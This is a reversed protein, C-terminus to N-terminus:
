LSRVLKNASKGSVFWVDRWNSPIWIEKLFTQLWDKNLPLAKGVCIWIIALFFHLQPHGKNVLGRSETLFRLSFMNFSHKWTCFWIMRAIDFSTFCGKALFCVHNEIHCFFLMIAKSWSEVVKFCLFDETLSLTLVSFISKCSFPSNDSM